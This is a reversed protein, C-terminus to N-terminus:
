STEERLHHCPVESALDYYASCNRGQERADSARPFAMPGVPPCMLLETLPGCPSSGGTLKGAVHTLWWPILDELEPIGMMACCFRIQSADMLVSTQDRAESLLNLIRTAM